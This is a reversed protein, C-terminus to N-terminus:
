PNMKPSQALWQATQSKQSDWRNEVPGDSMPGLGGLRPDSEVPRRVRVDSDVRAKYFGQECVVAVLQTQTWVSRSLGGAAGDPGYDRPLDQPGPPLPQPAWGGVAGTPGCDDRLILAPPPPQPSSLTEYHWRQRGESPTPQLRGLPGTTLGSLRLEDLEMLRKHRFM